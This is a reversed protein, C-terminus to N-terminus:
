AKSRALKIPPDRREVEGKSIEVAHPYPIEIGERDFAEKILKTMESKYVRHKDSPVWVRGEINVSSDGLDHVGFWPPPEAIARPDGAMLEEMIGLAQDIDDEYGIGLTVICRRRGKQTHNIIANGAAQGNPVLIIREEPSRLRTFFLDLDIVTGAQGNIEVFDGIHYPRIIAIMIGSAVNTLTGQLALGIALASAGLVAVLSTTQVGFQQLVIILVLIILAYRIMMTLFSALTADIRPHAAAKKRVFKSIFFALWLGVVLILAASGIRAAWAILEESRIDVGM